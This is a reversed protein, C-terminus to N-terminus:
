PIGPMSLEYKIPYREIKIKTRLLTYKLASEPHLGKGGFRNIFDHQGLNYYDAIEYLKKFVTSYSDMTKSDGFAIQDNYGGYDYTLIDSLYATNKEVKEPLVLPDTFVIDTRYRVVCDYKFNNETEYESKLQNAKMISYYMSVVNLPKKILNRHPVNDWNRDNFYQQPEVQCKKFPLIESIKKTNRHEKWFHGFLDINEFRGNPNILFNLFNQYNEHFRRPQGSICIAVKM